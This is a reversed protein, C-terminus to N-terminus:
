LLLASLILLLDFPDGLEITLMIKELSKGSIAANELFQQMRIASPIEEPRSSGATKMPINQFSFNEPLFQATSYFIRDFMIRFPSEFGM